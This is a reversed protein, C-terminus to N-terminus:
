GGSEILDKLTEEWTQELLPKVEDFTPRIIPRPPIKNTGYELWIMLDSFKIGSPTRKWASAGIFITYDKSSSKIKRVSLNNRLWGTEVYITNDGKRQVTSEALPTWSLDQADIHDLLKQLVIEGDEDIRAIFTPFLRVSLGQLVMGAKIWDGYKTLSM